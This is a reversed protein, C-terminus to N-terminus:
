PTAEVDTVVVHIDAVEACVLGDAAVPGLQGGGRATIDLGDVRELGPVQDLM